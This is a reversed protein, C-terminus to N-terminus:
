LGAQRHRGAQRGMLQPCGVLGVAAPARRAGQDPQPRRHCRRRRRRPRPPRVGGHGAAGPDPARGHRRDRAAMEPRRQGGVSLDPDGGRRQGLEASPGPGTRGPAAVAAVPAGGAGPATRADRRTAVRGARVAPAECEALRDWTSAEVAGGASGGSDGIDDTTADGSPIEPEPEPYDNGSEGRTVVEDTDDDARTEASSAEASTTTSPDLDLDALTAALEAALPDAATAQEAQAALRVAAREWGGGAVDADAAGAAGDGPAAGIAGAASNRTVTATKDLKDTKDNHATDLKDLDTPDAGLQALRDRDLITGLASRLGAADGDAGEAAGTTDLAALLDTLLSIAARAAARDQASAAGISVDGTSVDSISSTGTSADDDSSGASWPAIDSSTGASAAVGNEGDTGTDPDAPDPGTTPGTPSATPPETGVSAPAATDSTKQPAPDSSANAPTAAARAPPAPAPPTTAATVAQAASEVAGTMQAAADGLGSVPGPPDEGASAAPATPDPPAPPTTPLLDAPTPGYGAAALAVGAAELVPDVAVGRAQLANLHDSVDVAQQRWGGEPHVAPTIGLGTLKDTLHRARPDAAAADRAAIGALVRAQYRSEHVAAALVGATFAADAAVEGVLAGTSDTRDTRTTPTDPVDLAARGVPRVVVGSADSVEADLAAAAPLASVGLLAGAALAAAAARRVAPGGPSSSSSSSSSM